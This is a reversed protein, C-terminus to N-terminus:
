FYTCNYNTKNSEEKLGGLFGIDKNITNRHATKGLFHTVNHTSCLKNMTRVKFSKLSTVIIEKSFRM